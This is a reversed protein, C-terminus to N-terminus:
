IRRFVYSSEFYEMLEFGHDTAMGVWWAATGASGRDDSGWPRMIFDDHHKPYAKSDQTLENMMYLYGGDVLSVHIADFLPHLKHASNHQLVTFTFIVDWRQDDFPLETAPHTVFQTDPFRAQAVKIVKEAHDLGAVQFDMNFRDSFKQWAYVMRGGGCGVELIKAGVKIDHRECFRSMADFDGDPTWDDWGALPNKKAEKVTARATHGRVEERNWYEPADQQDRMNYIKLWPKTSSATDTDAYIGDGRRKGDFVDMANEENFDSVKDGNVSGGEAAEAPIDHRYVGPSIEISKIRAIVAELEATREEDTRTDAGKTMEDVEVEMNALEDMKLEAQKERLAEMEDLMNRVVNAGREIEDDPIEAKKGIYLFADPSDPEFHYHLLRFGFKMMWDFLGRPSDMFWHTWNHTDGIWPVHFGLIGGMRLVRRFQAFVMIPAIAHEITDHLYVIDFTEPEFNLQHMDMCCVHAFGLEKAHQVEDHSNTIGFVRCGAEKFIMMEECDGVGVNLVTRPPEIWGEHRQLFGIFDWVERKRSEGSTRHVGSTMNRNFIDWYRDDM